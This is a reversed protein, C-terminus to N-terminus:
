TSEVDIGKWRAPEHDVVLDSIQLSRCHLIHLNEPFLHRRAMKLVSEKTRLFIRFLGAKDLVLARRSSRISRWWTNITSVVAPQYYYASQCLFCFGEVEV